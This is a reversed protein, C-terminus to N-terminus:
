IYFVNETSHHVEPYTDKDSNIIICNINKLVCVCECVNVVYLSVVFVVCENFLLYLAFCFIIVMMMIMMIDLSGRIKATGRWM